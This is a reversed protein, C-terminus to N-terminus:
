SDFTSRAMAIESVIEDLREPNENVGEIRFRPVHDDDALLTVYGLKASLHECM